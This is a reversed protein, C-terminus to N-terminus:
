TQPGTLLGVFFPGLNEQIIRVTLPLWISLDNMDDFMSTRAAKNWFPVWTGDQDYQVSSLCTEMLWRLDEDKLTSLSDAFPVMLKSVEELLEGKSPLKLEEGDKPLYKELERVMPILPGILPTIRKLVFGQQFVDLRRARWNRGKISFEFSAQM